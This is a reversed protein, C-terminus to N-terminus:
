EDVEIRPRRRIKRGRRRQHHHPNMACGTM